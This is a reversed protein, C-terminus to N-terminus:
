YRRNSRLQTKYQAVSAVFEIDIRALPLHRQQCQQRIRDFYTKVGYIDLQADVENQASIRETVSQQRMRFAHFVIVYQQPNNQAPEITTLLKLAKGKQTNADFVQNMVDSFQQMVNIQPAQQQAPQAQQAQAPQNPQAAQQQQQQQAPQQQAAAIAVAQQPNAVNHLPATLDNAATVREGISFPAAQGNWNNRLKHQAWWNQPDYMVRLGTPCTRIALKRVNYIPGHWQSPDRGYIHAMTSSWPMRMTCVLKHGSELTFITFDGLGKDYAFLVCRNTFSDFQFPQQRYHLTQRSTIAAKLQAPYANWKTTFHQLSEPGVVLIGDNPLTLQTLNSGDVIAENLMKRRQATKLIKKWDYFDYIDIRSM